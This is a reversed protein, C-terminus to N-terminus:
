RSKTNPGFIDCFEREKGDPANYHTEWIEHEAPDLSNPGYGNLSHQLLEIVDAYQRFTRAALRREEDALFDSLVASITPDAIGPAGGPAVNDNATTM